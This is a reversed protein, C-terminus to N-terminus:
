RIIHTGLQAYLNNKEEFFKKRYNLLNIQNDYEKENKLNSDLMKIMSELRKSKYRMAAQTVVKNLNEDLQTVIVEHMKFWNDSIEHGPAMIDLCAERIEAEQHARFSQELDLDEGKQEAKIYEKLIVSYVSNNFETGELIDIVSKAVSVEKEEITVKEGGYLLLLRIIEREYFDFDTLQKKQQTQQHEIKEDTVYALDEEYTKSQKKDGYKKLAIRRLKNTENILFKEDIELHRSCEKIYVARKIGDKIKAISAAIDKIIAAKAIPDDKGEELLLELKFLVFDKKNQKIYEEFASTGVERLYSDPDAGDPLPIVRVDADQELLIDVGRLAAKIGAKDGDYLLTINQSFRKIMRVQDPTLATGSSAM